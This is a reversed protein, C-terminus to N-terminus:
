PNAFSEFSGEFFSCAGLTGVDTSLAAGSSQYGYIAMTDGANVLVTMSASVLDTTSAAAAEDVQAGTAVAGNQYLASFRTGTTNTAYGVKWRFSWRGSLGVPIVYAYPSTSARGSDTDWAATGTGTDMTIQTWATNALSQSVSQYMRFMPRNSWWSLYTGFENIKASTPAEEYAFSPIPPVARAVM